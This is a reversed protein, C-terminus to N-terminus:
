HILKYLIYLKNKAFNIYQMLVNIIATVIFFLVIYQVATFLFHKITVDFPIGAKKQLIVRYIISYLLLTILISYLVIEVILTFSEPNIASYYIIPSILINSILIILLLSILIAVCLPLSQSLITKINSSNQNM